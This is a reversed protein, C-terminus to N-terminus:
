RGNCNCINQLCYKLQVKSTINDWVTCVQGLNTNESTNRYKNKFWLYVSFKWRDQQMKLYTCNM